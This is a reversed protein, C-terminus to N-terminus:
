FYKFFELFINKLLSFYSEKKTIRRSYEYTIHKYNFLKLIFVQFISLKGRLNDRYFKIIKKKKNNYRPSNSIFTGIIEYESLM